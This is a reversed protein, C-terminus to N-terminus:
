AECVLILYVFIITAVRMRFDLLGASALDKVCFYSKFFYEKRSTSFTLKSINLSYVSTPLINM